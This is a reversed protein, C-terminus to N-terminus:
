KDMCQEALARGSRLTWDDWCVSLIITDRGQCEERPDGERRDKGNGSAAKDTPLVRAWRIVAERQFGMREAARYSAENNLNASWAVRRLGLGGDKPLDLAFHLLLGIANSTVHTGRFKAFTIVPGIETCLDHPLTQIFGIVGALAQQANTKDFVAFLANAREAYWRNTWMKEVLDACTPYPGFPLYQFTGDLTNDFLEQAHLAPQAYTLEYILWNLTTDYM